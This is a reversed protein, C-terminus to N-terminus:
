CKQLLAVFLQLMLCNRCTMLISLEKIVQLAM